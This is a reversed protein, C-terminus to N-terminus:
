FVFLSCPLLDTHQGATLIQLLQVRLLDGVATWVIFTQCFNETHFRLQDFFFRLVFVTVVFYQFLAHITLSILTNYLKNLVIANGRNRQHLGGLTIIWVIIQCRGQKAKDIVHILARIAQFRVVIRHEATCGATQNSGTVAKATIHREFILLEVFTRIAIRQHEGNVCRNLLEQLLMQLDSHYFMIDLFPHGTNNHIDVGALDKGHCGFRVEIRVLRHDDIIRPRLLAQCTQVFLVVSGLQLDFLLCHPSIFTNRVWIFRTRYELQNSRSRRQIGAGCGHMRWVSAGAILDYRAVTNATPFVCTM